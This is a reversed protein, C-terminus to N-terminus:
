IQFSRQENKAQIEEESDSTKALYLHSKYKLNKRLLFCRLSLLLVYTEIHTRQNSILLIQLKYGLYRSPGIRTKM